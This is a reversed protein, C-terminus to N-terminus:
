GGTAQEENMLRALRSRTAGDAGTLERRLELLDAAVEPREGVEHEVSKLACGRGQEWFPCSPGPCSRARGVTAELACLAGSM